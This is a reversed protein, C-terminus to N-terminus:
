KKKDLISQMARKTKTNSNSGSVVWKAYELDNEAVWTCLKGKYKGFQVKQEDSKM